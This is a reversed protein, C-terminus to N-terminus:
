EASKLANIATRKGTQVEKCMDLLQEGNICTIVNKHCYVRTSRKYDGLTILMGRFISNVHMCRALKMAEEVEVQWNHAHKWVVVFHTDDLLFGNGEDGCKDTFEVKHGKRRLAEAIINQFDRTNMYLLFRRSDVNELLNRIKIRYLILALISFIYYFIAAIIMLFIWIFLM